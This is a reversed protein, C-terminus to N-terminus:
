RRFLSIVFLIGSVLVSLIIMTTIPFYISFNGKEVTIDGPLKGLNKLFPISDQLLVLSGAAVLIIGILILLKGVSENM